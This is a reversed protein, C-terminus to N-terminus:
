RATELRLVIQAMADELDLTAVPNILLGADTSRAILEAAAPLREGATRAYVGPGTFVELPTGAALIAGNDIVVIRDAVRVLRDVEHEVVIVTHDDNQRLRDIVAFLQDKGLPDLESTPEDLILLEPESMLASAIALRQKQGGSLAYTDRDLLGHLGVLDLYRLSREAIVAPDVEYNEPGFALDEAVTMGIIQAEPDQLVLGIRAGLDVRLESTIDVGFAKVRGEVEGPSSHPIIGRIAQCLTSKGAGSSGIIGITEGRQVTLNIGRLAPREASPYRFWLDEVQLVVPAGQDKM